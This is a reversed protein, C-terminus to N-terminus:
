GIYTVIDNIPRRNRAAPDAAPHGVPILAVPRMGAPMELIASLSDDDFAGCWCTGLQMSKACLLMNQIAAATDQICYLNKGRDGYRRESRRAEAGVVIWLPATLMWDQRCSEAVIREMVSRDRIVYFHWPQCNGGSPAAQAAELLAIVQDSGVNEPTYGRISKRSKALELFEMNVEQVFLQGAAVSQARHSDLMIKDSLIFSTSQQRGRGYIVQHPFCSKFRCSGAIV